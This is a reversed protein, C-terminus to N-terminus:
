VGEIKDLSVHVSYYGNSTGYWRINVSGKITAFKYFTWLQDEDFDNNLEDKLTLWVREEDPIDNETTSTVSEAQVLPHGVLDQLDGCVDEISVCECCDQAHYMRWKEGEATKFVIEDDDYQNVETFTVGLMDNFIDVDYSM